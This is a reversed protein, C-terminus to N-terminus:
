CSPKRGGATIQRELAGVRSPKDKAISPDFRRITAADAEGIKQAVGVKSMEIPPTLPESRTLCGLGHFM